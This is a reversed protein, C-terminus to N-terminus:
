KSAAPSANSPCHHGKTLICSPQRNTQNKSSIYVSMNEVSRNRWDWKVKAGGQWIKRIWKDLCTLQEKMTKTKTGSSQLKRWRSFHVRPGVLTKTQPLQARRNSYSTYPRLCTDSPSKWTWYRLTSQDSDPIKSEAIIYRMWWCGLPPETTTATVSNHGSLFIALIMSQSTNFRGNHPSKQDGQQLLTNKMCDALFSKINLESALSFPSPSSADLRQTDHSLFKQANLALLIGTDELVVIWHSWIM